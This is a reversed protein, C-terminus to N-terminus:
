SNKPKCKSTDVGVAKMAALVTEIDYKYDQTASIVGCAAASFSTNSTWYDTNAKTMVEFAKKTNWKGAILTFAKNFIGSSFHVNVTANYDKMNDISCDHGPKKKGCDKTPQDMWRLLSGGEKLVEPDIEWNNNGKVYYEIAKDAMDSFSENLGGSQEDYVLNSHQETFGHSMEHAVISPATVPYSENDGDGFVMTGNLYYANQGEDPDHAIMTVQMPKGKKVLMDLNFWDKYMQRVIKDSYLADNNPSYGGNAKDDTTNWYLNNHKSDAQACSFTVTKDNHRRDKIITLKNQLYCLKAKTDRQVELAPFHGSLGDYSIQGIKGENGGIGGGQVEELKKLDNWQKYVTFSLADLIYTPLEAPGHAPKAFFSILYAWHATNNQDVYVILATKSQSIRAKIGSTSEHLQIAQQLSKEAQSANFVYAPTNHLDEAIAQYMTGNMTVNSANTRGKALNLLTANMGQPIHIVSDSGWVSYNAFTQQVRIHKTQNFDIHEQLQQIAENKDRAAATTQPTLWSQLYSVPQERLDIPKAAFASSLCALTLASVTFIRPSIIM